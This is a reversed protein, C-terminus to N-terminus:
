NGSTTTQETEASLRDLRTALKGDATFWYENATLSDAIAEDSTLEDYV